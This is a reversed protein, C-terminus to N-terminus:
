YLMYYYYHPVITLEVEGEQMRARVVWMKAVREMKLEIGMSKLESLDQQM